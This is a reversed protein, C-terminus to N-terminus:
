NNTYPMTIMVQVMNRDSEKHINIDFQSANIMATAYLSSPQQNITFTVPKSIGKITLTGTVLFEKGSGGKVSTSKFSLKPFDKANFYKKSRLSWNRLWNNTDITETAVTGSFTAESLNNLDINGTFEFESFTGDVDDDVFVFAIKSKSEDIQITQAASQLNVLVAILIFLPKM